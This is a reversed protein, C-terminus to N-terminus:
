LQLVWIYDSGGQARRVSLERGILSTTTAAAPGILPLPPGSLNYFILPRM